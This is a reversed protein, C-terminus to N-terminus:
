HFPFRENIGHTSLTGLQFTCKKELSKRSKKNGHHLSLWCITTNHHSHNPLNLHRAVPKFADTDNKRRRTPTRSLPGGIERNRKYLDEEM